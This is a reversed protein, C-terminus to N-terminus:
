EAGEAMFREIYDVEILYLNKEISAKIFVKALNCDLEFLYGQRGKNNINFPSNKARCYQEIASSFDSTVIPHSIRTYECDVRRGEREWYGGDKLEEPQIFDYCRDRVVSIAMVKGKSGHLIIDGAQVDTLRDWHHMSRGSKSSIPAWIYGGRSESDFTKGQFVYYTKPQGSIHKSPGTDKSSNSSKKSVTSHLPTENQSATRELAKRAAAKEIAQQEEQQKAQVDRNIQAQIDPDIAFMKAEFTDPYRLTKEGYSFSITMNAGDFSLVVGEGFREHRVRANIMNMPKDGKLYVLNFEIIILISSKIYM